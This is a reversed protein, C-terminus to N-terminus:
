QVFQILFLSRMQAPHGARGLAALPSIGALYINYQVHDEGGMGCRLAGRRTQEVEKQKDLSSLTTTSMQIAGCMPIHILFTIIDFWSAAMKCCVQNMLAVSGKEKQTHTHVQTHLHIYKSQTVQGGEVGEVGEM